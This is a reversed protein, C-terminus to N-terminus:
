SRLRRITVHTLALFALWLAGVVPWEAVTFLLVLGGALIPIMDGAAIGGSFLGPRLGIFSGLVGAATATVLGGALSFVWGAIGARGFAGALLAGIMAGALGMSLMYRLVLGWPVDSWATDLMASLDEFVFVVFLLASSVAMLGSALLRPAPFIRRKTVGDMNARDGPMGTRAHRHTKDRVRGPAAKDRGDAM